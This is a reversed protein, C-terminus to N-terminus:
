QPLKVDWVIGCKELLYIVYYSVDIQWWKLGHRASYPYRHHSNHWGDGLAILGFFWNDRSNDPTDFTRQGFLHGFSNVGFEINRVLIVRLLGGWLVGLLAGSISHTWFGAIMGPILLGLLVVGLHTLGPWAVRSRNVMKLLVQDIADLKKNPKFDTLLWLFHGHLFSRWASKYHIRNPSHPDGIQDTFRHHARHTRVWQLLPGTLAITGLIMLVYAFWPKCKFSRHTFYRHYGIGVGLLTLISFFVFLFLHIPQTHPWAYIGAALSLLTLTYVAINSPRMNKANLGGRDFEDNM